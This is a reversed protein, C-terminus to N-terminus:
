FIKYLFVYMARKRRIKLRHYYCELLVCKVEEQEPSDDEEFVIDKIKNEANNDWETEFEDRLPMYGSLEPVIPSKTQIKELNSSHTSSYM